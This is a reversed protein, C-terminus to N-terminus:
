LKPRPGRSLQKDLEEKVALVDAAKRHHPHWLRELQLWAEMVEKPGYCAGFARLIVVIMKRGVFVGNELYKDLDDPQHMGISIPNLQGLASVSMKSRAVEHDAKSTNADAQPKWSGEPAVNVVDDYDDDMHQEVHEDSKGSQPRSDPQTGNSASPLHMYFEDSTETVTQDLEDELHLANALPNEWEMKGPSRHRQQSDLRAKSTRLARLYAHWVLRLKEASWARKQGGHIAFGEFLMMYVIQHPPVDFANEMDRLIM